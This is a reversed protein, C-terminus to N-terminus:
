PTAAGEITSPKALALTVPAKASDSAQGSVFTEPLDLTSLHHRNMLGQIHGLYDKDPCYGAALVAQVFLDGRKYNFALKYRDSARLFKAYGDIGNATDPYSRFYAQTPIGRDVTNQYTKPGDWASGLAKLGFFNYHSKALDSSGYRSEYIAMAVTASAPVHYKIQLKIAEPVVLSLFDRQMTNDASDVVVQISRALTITQGATYFNLDQLRGIEVQMEKVRETAALSKAQYDAAVVYACFLLAASGTACCIWLLNSVWVFKKLAATSWRDPRAGRADPYSRLALTETLNYSKSM